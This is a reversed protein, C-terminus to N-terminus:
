LFKTKSCHNKIAEAMLTNIKLFPSRYLQSSEKEQLFSEHNTVIEYNQLILIYRYPFFKQLFLFKNYLNNKQM